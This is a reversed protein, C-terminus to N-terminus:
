AISDGQSRHSPFRHATLAIAVLPLVAAYFAAALPSLVTLAVSTVVVILIVLNAASIQFAARLAAALCLRVSSAGAASRVAGATGTVWILALLVNLMYFPLAVAAAQQHLFQLNGAVLALLVLFLVGLFVRGPFDQRLSRVFNSVVRDDGDKLLAQLSSYGAVLAPFTTIIGLSTVLILINILAAQSLFRFAEFVPQLLRGPARTAARIAGSATSQRRPEQMTTM